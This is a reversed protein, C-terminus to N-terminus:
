KPLAFAIYIGGSPVSPDRQGGAGIVVYQRGDIEYTIPTAIASLPLTTEWLLKGTAKDYARFKKDLVTAGIFLVGGATVIPGGYNESGTDKIGQAVLAPYQGFPIRWVYEGTDLNIANLTGWPPKIAPYGDPDNFKKYGTFDFKTSSSNSWKEPGEESTTKSVPENNKTEPEDGRALYKRLADLRIGGNALDPFAPMRGKGMQVANGIQDYTLRKNIGVLSPTDPPQGQRNDGHCAACQSMYIDRGQSGQKHPTLSETLAFENSNVYIIHTNPDFAPGGWEAGGDFGPMMLTDKDVSIPVFQGDSRISHFREVAWQHAAPTRDTLDDETIQQRTFPSPKTPLTQVPSAVEGPVASSPYKSTQVPFLPKGNIRNFLYLYGQKSTQAVAPIQKGNRTVTVLAPPAPFDRDWLDHHVAQFHWIRKGTEANLAILSDAFLDDGIRDDGYWDTSASGTPVYVIGRLADVAMGAWNNAAGSYTWADKPWTDYGFEGPHPITHFIWRMRGTHVDYARIDGPAAPLSEPMTDGVILLDKYVVGPSSMSVSLTKPDGRLGNRLEIRGHDGFSDIPKGSAPDLAYIYSSIGALIRRDGGNEWYVLGRQVKTSPQKPDFEWLLKGTVANLAFVKQTPTYAYLMGHVVLPSTELGGTEKSDFRWVEQLKSVNSTNIQNLKSYHTNAMSGGYAQWDIEAKASDAKPANPPEVGSAAVPILCALIAASLLKTKWLGALGRRTHVKRELIKVTSRLM